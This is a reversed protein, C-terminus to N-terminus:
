ENKIEWQKKNKEGVFPVFGVFNRTYILEYNM